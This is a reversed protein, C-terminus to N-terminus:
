LLLISARSLLSNAFCGRLGREIAKTFIADFYCFGYLFVELDPIKTRFKKMKCAGRFYCSKVHCFRM